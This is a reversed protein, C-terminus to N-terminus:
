KVMYDLTRASARLQNKTQLGAKILIQNFITIVRSYSVSLKTAIDKLTIGEALLRLAKDEQATLIIM